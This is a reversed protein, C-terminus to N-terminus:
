LIWLRLLKLILISYKGSICVDWGKVRKLRSAMNLYLILKRWIRHSYIIHFATACPLWKRRPWTGKPPQM